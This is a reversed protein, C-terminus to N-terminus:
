REEDSGNTSHNSCCLTDGDSRRCLPLIYGRTLLQSNLDDFIHTTKSTSGYYYSERLFSSINVFREPYKVKCFKMSDDISAPNTMPNVGHGAAVKGWPQEDEFKPLLMRYLPGKLGWCFPGSKKWFIVTVIGDSADGPLTCIAKARKKKIPTLWTQCM